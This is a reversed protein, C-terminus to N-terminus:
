VFAFVPVEGKVGEGVVSVTCVPFDLAYPNLGSTITDMQSQIDQCQSSSDDTKCGAKLYKEVLPSPLLNHGAYTGYQGYDRYPMWTIPNGVAFGRFNVGGLDVLKKALTPLYHGGYSESTLYFDNSKYQPFKALFGLIFLYNDTSAMDDGYKINPDSTYSFGVGLPQEIFVMNAAKNWRNENLTLNGGKSPRFPGQETM